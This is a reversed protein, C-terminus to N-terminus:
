RRRPAPAPPVVRAPPSVAAEAVQVAHHLALCTPCDEHVGLRAGHAQETHTWQAYQVAGLVTPPTTETSM